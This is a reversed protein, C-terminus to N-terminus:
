YYYFFKQNPILENAKEPGLVFCSTSLIDAETANDAIVTVARIKNELNSPQGTKPNFIHSIKKNDKFFYQEYDGSTACGNNSLQIIENTIKGTNQPDKIGIVWKRGHNKGLAYINGGANILANKIGHEKLVKIAEDVAYGKMIGGLDIMLGKKLFRVEQKEPDIKIYKYGVMEKAKKIETASPEQKKDTGFGYLRTIPTTTIDFAGATKESAATAALLVNLMDKSVPVSEWYARSNLISTQSQPDFYNLQKEIENIRQYAAHIAKKAKLRNRSQVNIETITHLAFKKENYDKSVFFNDIMSNIALFAILYILWKRSRM